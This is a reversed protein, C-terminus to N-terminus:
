IMWSHRLMASVGLSNPSKRGARGNVFCTAKPPGQHARNCIGLSKGDHGCPVLGSLSQPGARALVNSSSVWLDDGNSTQWTALDLSFLDGISSCGRLMGVCPDIRLLGVSVGAADLIRVHSVIWKPNGRRCAVSSFTLDGHNTLIGRENM